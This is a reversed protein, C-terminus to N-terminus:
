FHFGYGFFVANMGFVSAGSLFVGLLILAFPVYVLGRVLRNEWKLHHMLPLLLFASACSISLRLQRKMLGRLFEESHIFASDDHPPQPM